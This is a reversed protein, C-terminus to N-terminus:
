RLANDLKTVSPTIPNLMNENHYIQGVHHIKLPELGNKHQLSLIKLRGLILSETVPVSDRYWYGPVQYLCESYKYEQVRTCATNTSTSGGNWEVQGSGSKLLPFAPM